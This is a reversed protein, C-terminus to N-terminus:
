LCTRLINARSPSRLKRLAKLEVQRVRERSLGYQTGVEELSLPKGGNLGFRLRLINSEKGSLTDLVSDITQRTENEIIAKSPDPNNKDEMLDLFSTDKDNSESIKADLSEVEKAYNKLDAIKKEKMGLQSALEKNSPKRGLSESLNQEAKKLKSMNEIIHVPIRITRNQNAIARSISQKIYWSGFTSFRYGKSPDFKEVAKILGVTGEQILDLLSLNCCNTYQKAISVVLRLNSNIM